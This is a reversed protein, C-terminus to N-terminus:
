KLEIVYFAQASNSLDLRAGHRTLGPHIIRSSVTPKNDPDHAWQDMAYFGAGATGLYFAAHNGTKLRPYRGDVFTAIATGRPLNVDVVRAGARWATTPVHMLGPAYRKILDVCDGEGILAHGRLTDVLRYVHPM